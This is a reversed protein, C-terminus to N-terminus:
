ETQGKMASIPELAAARRAPKLGFVIGVLVAACLSVAFVYGSFSIDFLTTRVTLKVLMGWGLGLLAGGITLLVAECLFQMTIARAPAGLAKRLGVETGRESVSIYFLNALVFGSVCMAALATIGLFVSLGNKLMGIFRQIDLATVISFDNPQGEGLGHLHRLLSTVNAAHAEMNGPNEFKLRVMRFYHRDQNFRRILTSIPMVVTYDMRDSGGGGRQRLVGIVTFPVKAVQLSRGIAGADGFLERAVEAGLIVVSAAREVDDATIDRGQALPWDWALTYRETSGMVADAMYNQNGSILTVMGKFSMPAVIYVEPLSARMAAVDKWSITRTRQGVARSFMNGGQVFAADPGFASVLEDIRRDAGDMAAVIVSLSAIGLSVAAIVFLSRLKYALVAKWAQGLAGSFLRVQGSALGATLV